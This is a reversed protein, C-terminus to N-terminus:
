TLIPVDLLNIVVTMLVPMITTVNLLPINVVLKRTVGNLLVLAGIMAIIMPNEIMFVDLIIIVGIMLVIIMIMVGYLLINVVAITMVLITLVPTGTMVIPPIMNVDLIDIVGIM